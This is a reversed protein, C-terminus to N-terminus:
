ISVYLENLVGEMGDGIRGVEGCRCDENTMEDAESQMSCEVSLESEEGSGVGASHEPTRRLSSQAHFDDGRTIPLCYRRLM